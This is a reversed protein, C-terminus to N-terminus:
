KENVESIFDDDDIFYDDVKYGIKEFPNSPNVFDCFLHPYIYFEDGNIDYEIINEFPIFGFVQARVKKVEYQEKELCDEYEKIYIDTVYPMAYVILGNHYFNYVEAKFFGTYDFDNLTNKPYAIDNISRILVESHIFRLSPDQMRARIEESTLREHKLFDEHMRKKLAVNRRISQITYNRKETLNIGFFAFLLDQYESMLKCELVSSTWVSVTSFGKSKSYEEFDETLDRSLSCGVVLVYIDPIIVNQELYNDIIGHIISKTIKKYRKCQFYYIKKKGNELEEIARIDVGRDSGQKGFHDLAIWRKMRYIMAMALEEFRIPDLDEFHLQGITKTVM